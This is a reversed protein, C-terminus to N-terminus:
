VVMYRKSSFEETIRAQAHQIAGPPQKPSTRHLTFASSYTYEERSYRVLPRLRPDSPHGHTTPTPFCPHTTRPSALRAAPVGAVGHKTQQPEVRGCKPPLRYSKVVNRSQRTRMTVIACQSLRREEPTAAGRVEANRAARPRATGVGDRGSRGIRTSGSAISRM